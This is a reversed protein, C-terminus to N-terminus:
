GIEVTRQTKTAARVNKVERRDSSEICEYDGDLDRLEAVAEIAKKPSTVDEAQGVRVLLYLPKSDNLGEVVYEKLKAVIEEPSANHDLMLKQFVGFVKPKRPRSQRPKEAKAEAPQGNGGANSSPEETSTPMPAPAPASATPM